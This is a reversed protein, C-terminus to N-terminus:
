EQYLWAEEDEEKASAPLDRRTETPAPAPPVAPSPRPPIARPRRRLQPTATLASILLIAALGTRPSWAGTMLMLQATGAVTVISAAATVVLRGVPDLGRMLTWFAAGPAAFLTVLLLAKM